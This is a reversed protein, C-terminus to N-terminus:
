ELFANKKRAKNTHKRFINAPRLTNYMRWKPVCMMMGCSMVNMCRINGHWGTFGIFIIMYFQKSPTKNQESAREGNEQENREDERDSMESTMREEQDARCLKKWVTQAPNLSRPINQTAILEEREKEVCEKGKEDETDGDSDNVKSIFALHNSKVVTIKLIWKKKEM